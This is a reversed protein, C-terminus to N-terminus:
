ATWRRRRRRMVALGIDRRWRRWRTAVPVLANCHWSQRHRGGFSPGRPPGERSITREDVCISNRGYVGGALDVAIIGADCYPDADLVEDVADRAPRSARLRELVELNVPRGTMGAATPCDTAPSSAPRPIPRCRLRCPASAPGTRSSMVPPPRRRPWKRRRRCAPPRAKSSCRVRAAARTEARYLIGGNGIAAFAAHLRRRRRHAVREVAAMTRIM